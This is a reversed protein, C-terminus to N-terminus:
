TISFDALESVTVLQFISIRHKAINVKISVLFHIAYTSILSLLYALQYAGKNNSQSWDKLM